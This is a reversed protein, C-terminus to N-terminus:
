ASRLLRGQASDRRELLLVGLELELVAISPLFLETTDLLLNV